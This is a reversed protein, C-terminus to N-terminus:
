AAEGAQKHLLAVAEARFAVLLAIHTNTDYSWHNRIALTRYASLVRKLKWVIREDDDDPEMCILKPLDRERVYIKAEREIGNEASRVFDDRVKACLKNSPLQTM